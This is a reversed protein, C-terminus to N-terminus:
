AKRWYVGAGDIDVLPAAIGHARRYEDTARRAPELVGYDDVIVFGQPSVKDYLAQLAVMTSAYYDGDLRLVAIRGVPAAPLTNSIRQLPFSL